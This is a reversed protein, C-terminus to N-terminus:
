CKLAHCRSCIPAASHHTQPQPQPSATTPRHHPRPTAKTLSHHPKPPATASATPPAKTPSHHPQPPATTLCQHTHPLRLSHIHCPKSSASCRSIFTYLAPHAPLSYSPNPAAQLMEARSGTARPPLVHFYCTTTACPQLAHHHCMTTACPPLVQNTNKVHRVMVLGTVREM